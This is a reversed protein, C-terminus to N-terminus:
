VLNSTTVCASPAEKPSDAVGWCYIAPEVPSGLNSPERRNIRIGKTASSGFKVRYCMGHLLTYRPPAAMGGLGLVGAIWNWRDGTKPDWTNTGVDKLACCGIRRPLVIALPKSKPPWGRGGDWPPTARASGFKSPEGSNIRVRNLRFETHYCM